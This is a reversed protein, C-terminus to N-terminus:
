PKGGKRAEAEQLAKVKAKAAKVEPREAMESELIADADGVDAAREAKLRAETEQAEKSTVARIRSIFGM